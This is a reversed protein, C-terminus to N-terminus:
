RTSFHLQTISHYRESPRLVVSPFREQNPSDAPHLTELLMGSYKEVPGYKGKISGDFSRGTYTLLAPETTWLELTRGSQPDTLTAAHRLTGDYGCLLWCASMGRMLALHEDPMDLRYDVRHASRFDFPTGDVPVVDRPCYQRNNVICSDADVSLLQDMVYRSSSGALNYFAHNSLNVVTARDTVAEYELSLVNDESLSYTVSCSLNGPYGEEGDPSLYNMRVCAGGPLEASWLRRDFGASGGHLHVPMGDLKENATLSIHETDLEFSAGSIRNAYRGLVCGMFRDGRVFTELDGPGVIVDDLRGQRDPFFASVIRAGYDCVTVSAGSPNRMTYLRATDGSPLVGFFEASVSHM